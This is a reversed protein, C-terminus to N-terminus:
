DNSQTTTPPKSEVSDSKTFVQKLKQPNNNESSKAAVATEAPKVPTAEPKVASPKEAKNHEAQQVVPAPTVSVKADPKTQVQQLQPKNKTTAATPQAPTKNEVTKSEVSKLQTQPTAKGEVPKAEAAPQQAKASNVQPPQTGVEVPKKVAAPTQTTSTSPQTQKAVSEVQKNKETTAQQKNIQPQQAVTEARKEVAPQQTTSAQPQQTASETSKDTAPQKAAQSTPQSPKNSGESKQPQNSDSQSRPSNEQSQTQGEQNKNPRRRRGGRRGRRSSSPKDGSQPQNSNATSETPKNQQSQQQQTTQQQEERKAKPQQQRNGQGESRRPQNRRQGGKNRNQNQNRQNKQNSRYPQKAKTAAPKKEGTGFLARWIQVFIGPKVAAVAVPRPSAPAVSKVAPEEATIREQTRTTSKEIIDDPKHTALEYSHKSTTNDAENERIREVDYHPTELATNPVLLVKISQRKEIESLSDRKENLLFTAVDVPVQALIRATKEKMAEEEIVRLISLATSEVGRITGQGTCRPCVLQVSEGLSPRLRQRSMELLGFRSIRGVQVRARDMKLAERIRNEVERQNRAPTMDIFDIVVLGGLDRLRLQRAIEDAAELNTNLATEEIDGGKTARASNIDISILAETHDIVLSGGSPLRVERQFASEIQSEIQYRTFLPVPDQYLKIKNLNHPMVQSMFERAQEFIDPEDIIIESIDNRFYDRITRTILNSEQYILFPAARNESAEDISKWLNLLYNLDWQLEEVNKGLGATRIILGMDSPIDLQSLAERAENREDGEIRRSVGGARPNNPMLVSYRGALSIFTTLAAGKNGREEKAVQVVIEQGEKIVDKINIRQSLDTKEKFYMRSIEKLPLFGHRESGYDIFAAELSPEVRTIKGKYINSKKTERITTEIDLDYLRQGDVLAVRLEEQQTANFLMRKM